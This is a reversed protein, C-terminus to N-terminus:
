AACRPADSDDDRLHRDRGMYGTMRCELCGKALNVKVPKPIQWPATLSKWVEDDITGPERCHPCLTRVLRQAMVGLM